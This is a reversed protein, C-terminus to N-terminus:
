PWTNATTLSMLLAATVIWLSVGLFINGTAALLAGVATAIAVVFFTTLSM